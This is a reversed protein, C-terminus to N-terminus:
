PVSVLRDFCLVYLMWLSRQPQVSFLQNPRGISDITKISTKNDRGVAHHHNHEYLSSAFTGTILFQDRHAHQCSEHQRRAIRRV